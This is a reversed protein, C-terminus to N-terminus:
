LWDPHSESNYEPISVNNNYCTHTPNETGLFRPDNVSYQKLAPGGDEVSAWCRFLM